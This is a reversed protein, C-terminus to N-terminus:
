WASIEPTDAVAAGAPSTTDPLTLPRTTPGLDLAASALGAELSRPLRGTLLGADVARAVAPDIDIEAVVPAGVATAIDQSSLARGSERVVVVGTPRPLSGSMLRRLALYCPRTVLLSVDAQQALVASVGQPATGCDVIVPRTDNALLRALRDSADPPLPGAGRPVLMLGAAAAIGPVTGKAGAQLWETLGPGTPESLGLVAPADGACDILVAGTPSRHAHRM